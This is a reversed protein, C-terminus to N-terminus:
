ERWIDELERDVAESLGPGPLGPVAPVYRGLFFAVLRRYWPLRPRRDGVVWQRAALDRYNDYVFKDDTLSAMFEDTAEQATM